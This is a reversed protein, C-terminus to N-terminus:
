GVSCLSGVELAPDAGGGGTRCAALSGGPEQEPSAQSSNGLPVIGGPNLPPAPVLGWVHLSTPTSWSRKGDAGPVARPFPILAAITTPFYVISWVM